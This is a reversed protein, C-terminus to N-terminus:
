LCSKALRALSAFYTKLLSVEDDSIDEHVANADLNDSDESLNVEVTGGEALTEELKELPTKKPAGTARKAVQKRPSSRTPAQGKTKKKKAPPESDVKKPTDATSSEDGDGGGTTDELQPPAKQPTLESTSPVNPTPTAPNAPPALGM